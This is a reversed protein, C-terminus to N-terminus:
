RHADPFLGRVGFDASPSRAAHGCCGRALVAWCRCRERSVATTSSVPPLLPPPPPPPPRRRLVMSQGSCERAGALCTDAWSLGGALLAMDRRFDAVAAPGAAGSASLRSRRRSSAAADVNEPGPVHRSGRKGALRAVARRLASELLLFLGAMRGSKRSAHHAVCFEFRHGRGHRPLARVLQALRGDDTLCYM